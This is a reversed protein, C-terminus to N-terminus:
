GSNVEFVWTDALFDSPTQAFRPHKSAGQAILGGVDADSVRKLVAPYVVDGVKLRVHNDAM